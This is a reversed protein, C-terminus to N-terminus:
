QRWNAYVAQVGAVDGPELTRKIEEGYSAYGYMTMTLLFDKRRNSSRFMYYNM